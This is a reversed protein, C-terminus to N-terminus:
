EIYNDIPVKTAGLWAIQHAETVQDGIEVFQITPNIWFRRKWVKGKAKPAAEKKEKAKAM